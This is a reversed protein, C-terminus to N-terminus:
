ISRFPYKITSTGAMSPLGHTKIWIGSPFDFSLGRTVPGWYYTPVVYTLSFLSRKNQRYQLSHPILNTIINLMTSLSVKSSTCTISDLDIYWRHQPLKHHHGELSFRLATVTGYTSRPCIKKVATLPFLVHLRSACLALKNSACNVSTFELLRWECESVM